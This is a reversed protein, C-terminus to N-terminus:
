PKAPFKVTLRVTAGDAARGEDTWPNVAYAGALSLAAEGFGVGAPGETVAHCPSLAGRAAVVCEIVAEGSSIGRTKAALPFAANVQAATPVALWDGAGIRAAGEGPDFRVILQVLPRRAVSGDALRLDARFKSGLRIAADGFPGGKPTENVAACGVLRGDADADCAMLVVGAGSAHRPYAARLDASSPADLWHVGSLVTRTDHRDTPPLEPWKIPVRIISEVPKGDITEPKFRFQPALSVAAQGFGFGPPTESIVVCARTVGEVTVVCEIVASGTKGRKLADHPYVAKLQALTPSELWDPATVKPAQQAGLPSAVALLALTALLPWGIRTM